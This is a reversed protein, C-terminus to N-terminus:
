RTRYYTKPQWTSQDTRLFSELVDRTTTQLITTNSTPRDLIERLKLFRGSGAATHSNLALKIRRSSNLSMTELSVVKAWEGDKQVDLIAGLLGSFSYHNKFRWQEAVIEQLDDLTIEATVIRNEYPVLEFLDGIAVPGALLSKRSLRGHLVVDAGTFRGIARCILESTGCGVGPRGYSSIAKPLSEVVVRNREAEARALVDGLADRLAQDEQYTQDIELIRSGIEILKHNEVDLKATVVGVYKGHCGPQVYWTRHGIRRGAITRHSHGGLILDIEPFAWAIESVENVGRKDPVEFWGQHIALVILDPKAEVVQPLIKRLAIVASVDQVQRAEDGLLWHRTFAATAGIVAIKVGNKQFIRWPQMPEMGEVSLNGCIARDGALKVFRKFQDVGYDFEHNGPIWADVKMELIATMAAEGKTLVTALSGVTNDGCDVLLCQDDGYRERLQRIVTAARLWSFEQGSDADTFKGHLDTTHMIVVQRCDTALLNAVLFLLWFAVFVGKRVM